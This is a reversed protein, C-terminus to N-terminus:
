RVESFMRWVYKIQNIWIYNFLTVHPSQYENHISWGTLTIFCYFIALAALICYIAEKGSLDGHIKPLLGPIM